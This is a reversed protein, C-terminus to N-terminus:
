FAGLIDGFETGAGRHKNNEDDRKIEVSAFIGEPIFDTDDNVSERADVDTERDHIVDDPNKDAERPKSGAGKLPTKYIFVLSITIISINNPNNNKKNRQNKQSIMPMIVGNRIKIGAIKIKTKATTQRTKEIIYADLFM